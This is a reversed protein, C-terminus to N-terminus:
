VPNLIKREDGEKLEAKGRQTGPIRSPWCPGTNIRMLKHLAWVM